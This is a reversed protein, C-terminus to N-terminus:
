KARTKRDRSNLRTEHLRTQVDEMPDGHDERHSHRGGHRGIKTRFMNEEVGRVREQLKELTWEKPVEVAVIKDRLDERLGARFRSKLAPTNEQEDAEYM